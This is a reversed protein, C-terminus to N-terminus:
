SFDMKKQLLCEYIVPTVILNTIDIKLNTMYLYIKTM